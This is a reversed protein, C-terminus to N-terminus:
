FQPNNRMFEQMERQAREYRERGNVINDIKDEILPGLEPPMSQAAFVGGADSEVTDGCRDGCNILSVDYRIRNLHYASDAYERSGAPDDFDDPDVYPLWSTYDECTQRSNMHASNPNEYSMIDAIIGCFPTSGGHGFDSWIYGSAENFRNDPGHALGVAHGIEHLDTYRDCASVGGVPGFPSNEIFNTNTRACGCSDPCTNGYGLVIDADSNRSRSVIDIDQFMRRGAEVLKYQIFVGSNVYIENYADVMEQAKQWTADGEEAIELFDWGGRGEYFYIAIEWEVIQTDEEGYYIFGRLPGTYSYQMCDIYGNGPIYYEVAECRPEPVINYSYEEDAIVIYGTGTAGNGHIIVQDPTITVNGITGETETVEFGNTSEVTFRVPKFRDGEAKVLEVMVPPPVYGCEESKETEETYSGGSGDAITTVLTTDDCSTGLVTGEEPPPQCVEANVELTRRWSGCTGNAIRTYLTTADGRTFYNGDPKGCYQNELDTGRIPCVPEGPTYGCEVANNEVRRMWTGCQGNAVDVWKTWRGLGGGCYPADSLVTGLAPCENFPIINELRAHSQSCWLVTVAWIALLYKM